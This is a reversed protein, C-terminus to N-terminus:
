CTIFNRITERCQTHDLLMFVTCTHLVRGQMAGVRGGLVHFPLDRGHGQGIDVARIHGECM